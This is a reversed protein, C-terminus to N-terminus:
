RSCLAPMIVHPWKRLYALNTYVTWCTQQSCHQQQLSAASQLTATPCSSASHGPLTISCYRNGDPWHVEWLLVDSISPQLSSCYGAMINRVGGAPLLHRLAAVEQLDAAAQAVAWFMLLLPEADLRSLGPCHWRSLCPSCELIPPAQKTLTQLPQCM